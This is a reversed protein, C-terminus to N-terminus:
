KKFYSSINKVPIVEQKGTVLDKVVCTQQELENSGIIVVFPINKKSAYKFQKDMKANEYFIECSIGENRLLQMEKFALRSEKEGLNFFLVTTSKYIDEPFVNL